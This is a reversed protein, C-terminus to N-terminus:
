EKTGNKAEWMKKTMFSTVSACPKNDYVTFDPVDGALQFGLRKIFQIAARNARPTVGAIVDFEMKDFWHGLVAHGMKLTDHRNWYEKFFLFNGVARKLTDTYYINRLIVLGAHDKITGESDSGLVLQVRENPVSLFAGFQFFTMEKGEHFFMNFTGDDHMRKWLGPLFVETGPMKSLDYDIISWELGEFHAEAPKEQDPPTLHSLPETMM